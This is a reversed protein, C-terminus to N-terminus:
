PSNFASLSRLDEVLAAVQEVEAQRQQLRAQDIHGQGRYHHHQAVDASWYNHGSATFAATGETARLLAEAAPLLKARDLNQQSAIFDVLTQLMGPTLKRRGAVHNVFMALWHQHAPTIGPECLLAIATPWLEAPLADRLAAATAGDPANDLRLLRIFRDLMVEHLTLQAETGDPLKIIAHPLDSLLDVVLRALQDPSPRWHFLLDAVEAREDLTPTFVPGFLMDLEYDELLDAACLLFAPLSSSHESLRAALQRETQPVLARPRALMAALRQRLSEYM